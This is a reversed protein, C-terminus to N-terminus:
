LSISEAVGELKINELGGRLDILRALGQVHPQVTEFKGYWDLCQLGKLPGQVPSRAPRKAAGDLGFTSLCMVAFINADSCATKPDRLDKNLHHIAEIYSVLLEPAAPKIPLGGCARRHLTASFICAHFLARSTLAQSLWRPGPASVM